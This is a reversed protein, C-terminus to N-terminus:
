ESAMQRLQSILQVTEYGESLSSHLSLSQDDLYDVFRKIEAYLPMNPTFPIEGPKDGFTSINNQQMQIKDTYANALFFSAQECVVSVSREVNVADGSVEIIVKCDNAELVAYLSHIDDESLANGTAFLAKPTQGLLYQAISIDHPLLIWVPDVDQHPSRWQTRKLVLQKIRGYKGSNVLEALMIIGQHYKWKDMVFIPVPATELLKRTEELNNSIPKETFIPKGAVSLTNIVDIHTDTPTAVIFGDCRANFLAAYDVVILDAQEQRANHQSQEQRAMVIVQCGITKLDKLIYRGWRGCGILGITKPQKSM